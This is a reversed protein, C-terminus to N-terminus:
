FWGDGYESDWNYVDAVGADDGEDRNESLKEIRTMILAKQAVLEDIPLKDKVYMKTIVDLIIYEEWGNVGDIVDTDATLKIANPTYTLRLNVVSTPIPLLQLKNNGFLRFVPSGTNDNFGFYAFNNNSYYNRHQFNYPKIAYYTDNGPGYKYDLGKLKYFDNPLDIFEEGPVTVLTLDQKLYYDNGYAEVLLDTLEAYSASIYSNLEATSFLPDGVYDGRELTLDRIQKLTYSRM